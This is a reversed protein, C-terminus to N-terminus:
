MNLNLMSTSVFVEISYFGISPSDHIDCRSWNKCIPHVDNHLTTIFEIIHPELLWEEGTMNADSVDRESPQMVLSSDVTFSYLYIRKHFYAQVSEICGQISQSVCIRPIANNEKGSRTLRNDPIRPFILTGSKFRRTSVFYYKHLM